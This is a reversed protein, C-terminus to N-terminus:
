YNQYVNASSGFVIDIEAFSVSENSFSFLLLNAVDYVIDYIIFTTKINNDRFCIGFLNRFLFVCRSVYFTIASVSFKM